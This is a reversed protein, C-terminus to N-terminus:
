PSRSCTVLLWRIFWQWSHVLWDSLATLKKGMWCTIQLYVSLSWATKTHANSLEVSSSISTSERDRERSTDLRLVSENNTGLLFCHAFLDLWVWNLKWSSIKLVNDTHQKTKNKMVYAFSNTLRSRSSKNSFNINNDDNNLVVRRKRSKEIQPFDRQEFLRSNVNILILLSPAPFINTFYWM